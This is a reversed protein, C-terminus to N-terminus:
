NQPTQTNGTSHSSPAFGLRIFVYNVVYAVAKGLLWGGLVDGPYHVGTYVRSFGVAGALLAQAFSLRTTFMLVGLLVHALLALKLLFISAPLNQPKCRLLAIQVFPAVLANM